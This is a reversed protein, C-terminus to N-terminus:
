TSLYVVEFLRPIATGKQLRMHLESPLRSGEVLLMHLISGSPPTCVLRLNGESHIQMAVDMGGMDLRLSLM